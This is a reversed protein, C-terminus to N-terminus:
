ILRRLRAEYLAQPLNSVQLKEYIHRVHTYVTSPRSGILEAIEPYNCGKAALKLIDHERTTLRAGKDASAPSSQRRLMELIRFAISPSICSGGDAAIAIARAMEAPADSKCVYGSAGAMIAQVITDEDALSSVVLVTPPQALARAHRIMGISSGDPLLLDALCLDFVDSALHKQFEALSHAEVTTAVREGLVALAEHLVVRCHEEDELLLVRLANM